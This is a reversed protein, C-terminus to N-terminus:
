KDAPSQGPKVRCDLSVEATKGPPHIGPDLGTSDPEAFDTSPFTFIRFEWNDHGPEVPKVPADV